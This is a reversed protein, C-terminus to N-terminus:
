YTFQIGATAGHLILSGNTAVYNVEDLVGFDRPINNEFMAVGVMGMARYGFFGSLRATAQFSFGIDLQGLMAVDNKYSDEDFGVFGDGRQLVVHKDVLLAGVGFKPTAYFRFRDTIFYQARAGLQGGIYNNRLAENFFATDMGLNQGFNTGFAAAGYSTDERFRVWRAGALGTVSLPGGSETLMAELWNIEVGFIQDKRSFSQAGSNQFFDRTFAGAIQTECFDCTTFLASAPLDTVTTSSRFPDLWFYTAEIASTCGFSRGLRVEYGGRWDYARDRTNMIDRTQTAADTTLVIRNGADRTMILGTVGGFWCPGCNCAPGCNPGCTGTNCSGDACTGGDSMGLQGMVRQGFPQFEHDYNNFNPTPSAPGWNQQPAGNWPSGTPPPTMPVSPAYPAAPTTYPASSPPAMTPQGPPSSYIPGSQYGPMPVGQPAPVQTTPVGMPLNGGGIPAGNMPGGSYAPTQAVPGYAGGYPSAPPYGGGYQAVGPVSMTLWSLLAWISHKAKM